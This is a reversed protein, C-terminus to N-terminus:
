SFTSVCVPRSVMHTLVYYPLISMSYTLVSSTKYGRTLVTLCMQLTKNVNYVNTFMERKLMDTQIDRHLNNRKKQFLIM